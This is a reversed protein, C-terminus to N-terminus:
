YNMKSKNLQLSRGVTATDMKIIKGSKTEALLEELLQEVKGNSKDLQTGGMILDGKNFKIPAQGPRMIFDQLENGEADYQKKKTTSAKLASAEASAEQEKRNRIGRIKLEDQAGEEIKNKMVLNLIGVPSVAAGLIRLLKETWPPNALAEVNSLEVKQKDTLKGSERIEDATTAAAAGAGGGMSAAFFGVEQARAVFDLLGDMLFEIANTGVLRSLQTKLDAM